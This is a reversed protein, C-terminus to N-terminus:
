VGGVIAVTESDSCPPRPRALQGPHSCRLLLCSRISFVRNIILQHMSRDRHGYEPCSYVSTLELDMYERLDQLHRSSGARPM